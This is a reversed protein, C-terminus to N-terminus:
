FSESGRALSGSSDIGTTVFFRNCFLVTYIQTLLPLFRAQELDYLMFLIFALIGFVIEM